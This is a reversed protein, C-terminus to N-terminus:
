GIEGFGLEPDPTEGTTLDMENDMGNDLLVANRGCIHGNAALWSTRIWEWVLDDDLWDDDDGDDDIPINNAAVFSDYEDDFNPVLEMETVLVSRGKETGAIGLKLEYSPHYTLLVKFVSKASMEDILQRFKQEANASHKALFETTLEAMKSEDM